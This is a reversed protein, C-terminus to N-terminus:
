SLRASERVCRWDFLLLLVADVYKTKKVLEHRNNPGDSHIIRCDSGLNFKPDFSHACHALTDHAFSPREHHPDTNIHRVRRLRM